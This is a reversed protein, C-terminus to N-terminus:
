SHPRFYEPLDKETDRLIQTIAQRDAASLRAYKVANDKGSLGSPGDNKLPTTGDEVRRKLAAVPDTTPRTAYEIVPHAASDVFTDGLQGAGATVGALATWVVALISCTLLLVRNM